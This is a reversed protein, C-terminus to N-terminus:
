GFITPPAELAVTAHAPKGFLRVSLEASSGTGLHEITAQGAATYRGDRQAIAYVGLQYQPVSSPNRVNLRLEDGGLTELPQASEVVIGPLLLRRPLPVAPARGVDAFLRSQTSLQRATTFVWTLTARSAIAPLHTQFYDLDAADNLYVRKDRQEILGVSIPLDSIAHGALNRVRVVVASGGGGSVISLGDIQVDPNSTRVRLGVQSARLRAGNLRLRAAEQQTTACGALTGLALTAVIATGIRPRIASVSVAM